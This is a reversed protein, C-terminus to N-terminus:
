YVWQKGDKSYLRVNTRENYYIQKWDSFREPILSNQTAIYNFKDGKKVWSSDIFPFKVYYLNHFGYLLVKDTNKITEKFYNDTDYFDGFSFNLNNSLFESKTQIGFIVPIFKYNALFRYSISSISILFILFILYKKILQNKILFVLFAVLISFAPLYPLIFRSGGVSSTILWFILSLFVYTFLIKNKYDFKKFFYLVFPLVILYIPNIPDSSFLFLNLINILNRDFSLIFFNEFLPYIFNKTNIFSFIFWPLTILIPILIYAFSAKIYSLFNIRKNLFIIILIFLYIGISNFVSIKSSLSLGLMISSYILYKFEKKEFWLVFQSLAVIEFFVIGLDIYSTISQWGVVLSSYFILCTLLSYEKTLFIRSLKYLAFLSLIGFGFHILKVGIENSFSLISLYILDINKPLDSYYLLNGPIHIISHNEFFIRPITLHYWLADFSLEPGLAGILNVFAQIIILILVINSIRSLKRNKLYSFSFSMNKKFQFLLVLLYTISVFIIINKYLLGFIGLLFILYSYVGIALAVLFM